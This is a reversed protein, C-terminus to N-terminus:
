TTEARITTEIAYIKDKDSLNFYTKFRLSLGALPSYVVEGVEVLKVSDINLSLATLAGILGHERHISNLAENKLAVLALLDLVQQKTTTLNEKMVKAEVLVDEAVVLSRIKQGKAEYHGIDDPDIELWEGNAALREFRVISAM